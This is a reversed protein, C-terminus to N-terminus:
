GEDKTIKYGQELDTIVKFYGIYPTQFQTFTANRLEQVTFNDPILFGMSLFTEVICQTFVQSCHITYKNDPPWKTNRTPPYLSRIERELLEVLSVQGRLPAVEPSKRMELDQYVENRLNKTGQELQKKIELDDMGHIDKSTFNSEMIEKINLAM